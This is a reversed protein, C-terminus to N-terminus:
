RSDKEKEWETIRDEKNLIYFVSGIWGVAPWFSALLEWRHQLSILGCPFAFFFFVIAPLVEKPVPLSSLSILYVGAVLSIGSAM